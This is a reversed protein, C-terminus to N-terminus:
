LNFYKKIEEENEISHAIIYLMNDGIESDAKLLSIINECDYPYVWVSNQLKLFGVSILSNRINDRDFRRSEPIDFILIRWKKDWKKSNNLKRVEGLALCKNLYARGRPTIAIQENNAKILGREILIRQSRKISELQRKHLKLGLKKMTRLINPALMAASLVSTVKISELIIEQVKSIKVKREMKGM